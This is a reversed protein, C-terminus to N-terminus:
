VAAPTVTLTATNSTVSGALNSVAVAFQSGSDSTTAAPATYTGLTAGSISTGNKLWQYSLPPEGSAAVSFTATQGASITQSMPQTTFSPSESVGDGTMMITTLQTSIAPAASIGEAALEPTSAQTRTISISGSANGTASPAFTTKFTASQGVGLTLPLPPGQIKFGRGSPATKTITFAASASNTLTLNQNSVSGIRVNGFSLSSPVAALTGSSVCGSQSIAALLVVLFVNIVFPKRPMLNKPGDTNHGPVSSKFNNM